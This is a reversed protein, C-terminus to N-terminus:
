ISKEIIQEEPTEIRIESDEYGSERKALENIVARKETIPMDLFDETEEIAIDVLETLHIFKYIVWDKEGMSKFTLVDDTSKGAYPNLNIIAKNRKRADENNAFKADVIENELHMLYPSSVNANTAATYEQTLRDITLVNFNKPDNIIPLLATVDKNDSAVERWLATNEIINPLVYRFVHRSYRSLFANLEERDVTKAVGSQDEGVMQVIEFNISALGRTEEKAIRDEVKDIIDISKDIYGAPPTPLPADPNIADRNITHIGYPSRSIKGTGSCNTCKVSAIEESKGNLITTQVTGGNCGDADCDTAYEWKEMFLHNVYAAQADSTLSVVQNWHPLIGRIFSEFYYPATEGKIIGGIRFVPVKGFDHVYNFVNEWTEKGQKTNKIYHNIETKTYVEVTDGNLMTYYDGEVFDVVKDSDYIVPVPEFRETDMIEFDQPIIAICANPDSYDKTTFTESIFNMVSRYFPYEEFLYTELTDEGQTEPFVFSYLRPNFIKNTVNIVKESLSQTVPEYVSLRYDKIDQQENPRVINLLKVPKDGEVHVGMDEAHSVTKKYYSHRITGKKIDDLYEKTIDM